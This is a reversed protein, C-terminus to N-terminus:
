HAFSRPTTLPSVQAKLHHQMEDITWGHRPTNVLWDRIADRVLSPLHPM